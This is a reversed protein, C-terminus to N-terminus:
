GEEANQLEAVADIFEDVEVLEQGELNAVTKEGFWNLDVFKELTFSM